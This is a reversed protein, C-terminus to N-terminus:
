AAKAQEEKAPQGPAIPPPTEITRMHVSKIASLPLLTKGVSLLRVRGEARRGHGGGEMFVRAKVDAKHADAAKVSLTYAGEPARTGNVKGDWTIEHVGATKGEAPGTWVVTGRENRIELTADKANKGLEYLWTAGAPTLTRSAWDSSVNAGIMDVAKGFDDNGQNAISKLLDNTMLQQEVSTMQVLQQTFQNGDMPSLPDQNKLQTTLLTLFMEFNEALRTRSADIKQGAGTVTNTANQVAAM